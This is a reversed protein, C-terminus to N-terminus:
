DTGDWDTHTTIFETILQAANGFQTYPIRLLPYGNDECWKNKLQDHLQTKNFAQQAQEISISGFQQPKFHQVGDYEIYLTKDDYKIEFDMRLWNDNENKTVSVERKYELKMADLANMVAFEGSSGHFDGTCTKIHKRLDGVTSCKYECQDCAQDKIKDHVQKIHSQLQGKTCFMSNCQNCAHDKIKDHIKKVHARLNSATSCKYECQDCEHDKIKDHVMKIHARLDTGQSCKYECQNCEHDKIKDHVMKIHVRLDCAASCKYECHDCKHKNRCKECTKWFEGKKNKAYYVELLQVCQCRTCKRLAEGNTNKQEAM